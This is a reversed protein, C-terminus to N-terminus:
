SFSILIGDRVTKRALSIPSKRTATAADMARCFAEINVAKVAM